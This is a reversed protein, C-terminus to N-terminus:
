LNGVDNGIRGLSGTRRDLDGRENAELETFADLAFLLVKSGFDSGGRTDSPMPPARAPKRAGLQTRRADGSRMCAQCPASTAVLTGGDLGNPGKKPPTSPCGHWPGAELTDQQLQRALCRHPCPWNPMSGASGDGADGAFHLHGIVGAILQAQHNAAAVDEAAHGAGGLAHVAAGGIVHAHQRGIM